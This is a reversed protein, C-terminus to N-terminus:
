ERSIADNIWVNDPIEPETEWHTNGVGEPVEPVPSEEEVAPEVSTPQEGETPPPM